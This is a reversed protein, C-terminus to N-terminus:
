RGRALREWLQRAQAPLAAVRADVERVLDDRDDGTLLQDIDWCDQSGGAYLKFLVLDAAMVVPWEAGALKLRQARAVAASQWESRGVVLDVMREADAEIRVVGLLPDDADGRRVTMRVSADARLLQWTTGDLAEPATTFFDIDFTSRAVGRAALAAAGILAYPIGHDDLVAAVRAALRDGANV